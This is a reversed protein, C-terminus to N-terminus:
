PCRVAYFEFGDEECLQVCQARDAPQSAACRVYPLSCGPCDGEDCDGDNDCASGLGAFCISDKCDNGDCDDDVLCLEGSAGYGVSQCTRETPHCVMARGQNSPACGLGPPCQMGSRARCLRPDRNCSGSQCHDDGGCERGDERSREAYCTAQRRGDFAACFLGAGCADIGHAPCCAESLGQTMPMASCDAVGEGEGESGEGEGESGEGEPKDGFVCYRSKGNVLCYQPLHGPRYRLWRRV